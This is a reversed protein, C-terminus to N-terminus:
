SSHKNGQALARAVRARLRAFLCAVAWLVANGICPLGVYAWGMPTCTPNDVYTNALAAAPPFACGALKFWCMTLMVSIPRVLMSSGTCKLLAVTAIAPVFTAIFVTLFEPPGDERYNLIIASSCLTTVYLGQLGGRTLSKLPVFHQLLTLAAIGLGAGAASLLTDTVDAVDIAAAKPPLASLQLTRGADVATRFSRCGASLSLM